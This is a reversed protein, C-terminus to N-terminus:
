PEELEEDDYPDPRAVSITVKFDEQQQDTAPPGLIREVLWQEPLHRVRVRRFSKGDGSFQCVVSELAGKELFDDILANVRKKRKELLTIAEDSDDPLRAEELAKAFDPHAKKWRSLTSQACDIIRAIEGDTAGAAAAKICRAKIAESYKTKPTHNPM